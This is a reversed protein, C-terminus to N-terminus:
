TLQAVDAPRADGLTRTSRSGTTQGGRRAPVGAGAAGAGVVWPKMMDSPLMQSGIRWM